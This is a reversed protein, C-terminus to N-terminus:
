FKVEYGVEILADKFRRKARNICQRISSDKSNGTFKGVAQKLEAKDGYHICMNIITRNRENLLNLANQVAYSIDLMSIIDEEMIHNDQIVDEYTITSGDGDAYYPASLSTYDCMARRKNVQSNRLTLKCEINALHRYYFYFPAAGYDTFNCNKVAKFLALDCAEYLDGECVNYTRYKEFHYDVVAEFTPKMMTYLDEYARKDGKQALVALSNIKEMNKNSERYM